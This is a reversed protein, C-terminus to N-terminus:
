GDVWLWSQAQLDAALGTISGLVHLQLMSDWEWGCFQWIKVYLFYFRKTTFLIKKWFNFSLYAKLYLICCFHCLGVYIFPSAHPRVVLYSSINHLVQWSYGVNVAKNWWWFIRRRVWVHMWPGQRSVSNSILKQFDNWYCKQVSRPIKFINLIFDRWSLKLKLFIFLYGYGFFSLISTNTNRQGFVAKGFTNHM